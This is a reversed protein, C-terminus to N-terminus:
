QVNWGFLLVSTQLVSLNVSHSYQGKHLVSVPCTQVFVNWFRLFGLKREQVVLHVQIPLIKMKMKKKKTKRFFHWLFRLGLRKRRDWPLKFSPSFAFVYLSMFFIDFDFYVKVSEADISATESSPSRQVTLLSMEASFISWWQLIRNEVGSIEYRSCMRQYTVISLMRSPRSRGEQRNHQTEHCFLYM